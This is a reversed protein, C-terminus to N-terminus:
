RLVHYCREGIEQLLACSLRERTSCMAVEVKRCPMPYDREVLLACPLRERYCIVHYGREQLLACPLSQRITLCTTIERKYYPV